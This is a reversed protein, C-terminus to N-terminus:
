LLCCDPALVVFNFMICYDKLFACVHMQELVSIGNIIIYITSFCNRQM